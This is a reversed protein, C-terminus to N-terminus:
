SGEAADVRTTYEIKVDLSNKINEFASVIEKAKNEAIDLSSGPLMIFYSNSSNQMVIDSLKLHLLLVNELQHMNDQLKENEMKESSNLSLLIFSVSQRSLKFYRVVFRYVIALSERGLFLATESEYREEITRIIRQLKDNLDDKESGSNKNSKSFINYGHKGNQKATYLASDAMSFLAEFNRGQEPVFACGISIGLPIGHDEGMLKGAQAVIQTNLRNTLSAVASEDVMDEYFAMFEDGGIRSITDTERTNRKIIDAFATLMRDGMDHGFLDNVLKFNDLDMIMLAGTKRICLKSVRETGRAKNLFGTLNDFMAEETLVEIVKRGNITNEIRKVLIDKFFPKRIFDSAGLRLGQQEIESDNEGTLFIVPINSRGMKAEIKRLENYTTFGDMEPMMVDLLVLDPTNKEIFKLLDNGSRLCSVRMNEASLITRANTLYLEDDDVVTIWYKMNEGFIM